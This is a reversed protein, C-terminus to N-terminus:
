GSMGCLSTDRHKCTERLTCRECPSPGSAFPRDSVGIIGSVTKEPVMMLGSSLAVGIKEPRLLAFIGEQNGLGFDAYGPSCRPSLFFKHAGYELGIREYFERFALECYLSAWTDLLYQALLEKGRYLASLDGLTLVYAIIKSPSGLARELGPGTFVVGEEATIHDPGAIAVPFEGYLCRATGSACLLEKLRQALVGREGGQEGPGIGTMRAFLRDAPERNLLDPTLTLLAM